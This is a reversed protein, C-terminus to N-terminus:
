TSFGVIDKSDDISRTSLEKDKSHSFSSRSRRERKRMVWSEAGYTEEPFVLAKVLRVKTKISMDKDEWIKEMDVM